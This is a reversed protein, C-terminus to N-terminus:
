SVAILSVPEGVQDRATGHANPDLMPLGDVLFVYQHYGHHLQVQVLWSGDPQRRMPDDWAQWRNFDGVLSVWTAQPAFCYFNVPKINNRASYRNPRIVFSPEGTLTQLENM